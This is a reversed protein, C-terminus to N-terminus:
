GLGAAKERILDWLSAIDERTTAINGIAMRLVFQGKLVTHSLFAKGTANVQELLRQNQENSGRYRFCVLSLPAPAALEFRADAEVWSAFEHAWGIHSRLIGIIRERGFYRLIFWFKLARFRRGLQLGYDMLNIAREDEATRLYEAALSFARRLLDPRRTYFASFDVPTFLWKHPNIVISDAREAGELVHRFEPVIAAPGGYAGDIHLWLGYERAVDAIAPVPDISSTSTTGATAVVCFPKRGARRDEEVMRRLLEPRMRFAADVPVKRVNRHGVGLAIAAKDVSNHAQESTYMVLGAPMGELRAEPAAQERAAAIAHTTSISATDYVIGFFERPLGVWERLWGLVVQELETAAPCSKWLMGNVNLAAAALEGLIGPASASISFYGHFRPHNWHTVGPLIIARFDELIKEMPEGKEPASAPLRAAIQGPEVPPLVPYDRINALYDEIWGILERGARGFEGAPMGGVLKSESM